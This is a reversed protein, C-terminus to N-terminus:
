VRMPAVPLHVSEIKQRARVRHLRGFCSQTLAVPCSRKAMISTQTYLALITKVGGFLFLSRRPKSAATSRRGASSDRRPAQHRPSVGHALFSGRPTGGGRARCCRTAECCRPERSSNTHVACRADCQLVQCCRPERSCTNHVACRARRGNLKPARTCAGQNAREQEM